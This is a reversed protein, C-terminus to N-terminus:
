TDRDAPDLVVSAITGLAMMLGGIIDTWQESGMGFIAAGGLLTGIGAITSPEKLLKIIRKTM